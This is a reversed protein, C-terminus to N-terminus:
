YMDNDRMVPAFTLGKPFGHGHPRHAGWVRGADNGLGPWTSPKSIVIYQQYWSTTIIVFTTITIIIKTIIFGVDSGYTTFEGGLFFDVFYIQFIYKGTLHSISKWCEFFLATSKTFFIIVQGIVNVLNLFECFFFKAAYWNNKSRNGHKQPTNSPVHLYHHWCHM